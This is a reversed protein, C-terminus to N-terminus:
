ALPPPPLRGFLTELGEGLALLARDCGAPADFELAVPLGSPALGVPLVLGPLGATSGPAINRAIAAEFRVTRGGITVSRETGIPPAVIRTAPFVIAAVKAKAFYDRFLRRLAPLHRDRAAAYCAASVGHPSGPLVADRFAAQIDPSAASIVADLSKDPAHRELYQALAIGVDHNQVAATTLAILPALETLSSEVLVAGAAELQQLARETVREVDPALGAFYHDRIVGLRLGAVGAGAGAPPRPAAFEGTPMQTPLASSEGTLVAGFGGTLVTGFGGTLVADFLALDRVSRAHPGVQDFLPSIPVCDETSYRGTTPRFGAIGCLAAPVRISGETDEALGLPACRAAIAAASGGSSGGPICRPDYPNRVAGFALNNSTWGYSLEHLNTKGLVLAGARCLAAVVPADDKPRHDRLGPTGATTPYERTNISDKVPIPLGFLPGPAIGARRERDRLAATELVRAPDLSIFANLPRMAACRALLAAAYREATIDGCSMAAIAACADLDVLEDSM